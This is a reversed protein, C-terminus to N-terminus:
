DSSSIGYNQFVEHNENTITEKEQNGPEWGSAQNRGVEEEEEEEEESIM